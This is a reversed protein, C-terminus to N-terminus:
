LILSGDNFQLVEVQFLTHTGIGAGTVFYFGGGIDTVTFDAQNGAYHVTDTGGDGQLYDNGASAFIDDNGEGGFIVDDGLGGTLTDAGGLGVLRTNQSSGAATFIDDFAGGQVVEIGAATLDLSVGGSELYAVATDVGAGGQVLTDLNDIWLVDDGAGGILQDAGGLGFLQVTSAAGSADFVDNGVGGYAFEIGATGLNLSVGGTEQFDVVAFDVGAGGQVVTDQSDFHIIDSGSGGILQDAGADGYLLVTSTAGGADFIDNGVGGYAFEISSAALDLSVGATDAFVVAFDV